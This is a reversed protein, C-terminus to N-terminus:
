TPDSEEDVVEAVATVVTGLLAASLRAIVMDDFGGGDIIFLQRVARWASAVGLRKQLPPYAFAAGDGPTADKGRVRLQRCFTAIMMANGITGDSLEKDQQAVRTANREVRTIDRADAPIECLLEFEPRSPDRLVVTRAKAAKHAAQMDAIFDLGTYEAGTDADDDDVVGFTRETAAM